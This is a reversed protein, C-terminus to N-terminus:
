AAQFHDQLRGKVQVDKFTESSRGEAQEARQETHCVEIGYYWNIHKSDKFEMVFSKLSPSSHRTAMKTHTLFPGLHCSSVLPM